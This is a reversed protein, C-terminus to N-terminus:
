RRQHVEIQAHRICHDAIHCQFVHTFRPYPSAKSSAKKELMISYAPCVPARHAKSGTTSLPQRPIPGVLALVLDCPVLERVPHYASGAWVRLVKIPLGDSVTRIDKGREPSARRNQQWMNGQGVYSCNADDCSSRGLHIRYRVQNLANWRQGHHRTTCLNQCHRNPSENM